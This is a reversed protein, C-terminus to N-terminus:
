KRSLFSGSPAIHWPRQHEPNGPRDLSPPDGRVGPMRASTSCAPRGKHVLRNHHIAARSKRPQGSRGKKM